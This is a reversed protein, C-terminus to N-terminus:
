LNPFKLYAITGQKQRSQFEIVGQHLRSIAYAIHLGLGLGEYDFSYISSGRYFKETLHTVVEEPMGIGEDEVTVVFLDKELTLSVTIATNEMSFKIANDLLAILAQKMRRADFRCQHIDNTGDQLRVHIGKNRAFVDMAAIAGSVTEFIDGAELKLTLNNQDIENILVLQEAIIWLRQQGMEIANYLRHRDEMTMTSDAEQLRNVATQIITIPTLLYHSALGVFQDKSARLDHDFHRKVVPLVAGYFTLIAVLFGVVILLAQQILPNGLDM